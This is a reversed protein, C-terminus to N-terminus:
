KLSLGNDRRKRLVEIATEPIRDAYPYNAMDFNARALSRAESVRDYCEGIIVLLDRMEEQHLRADSDLTKLSSIINHRVKKDANDFGRILELVSEEYAITCDLFRLTLYENAELFDQDRLDSDEELDYDISYGKRLNSIYDELFRSLAQEHKEVNQILENNDNM